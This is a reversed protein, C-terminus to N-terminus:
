SEIESCFNFVLCVVAFIIGAAVVVGYIVTLVLSVTLDVELFIGDFPIGGLTLNDLLASISQYRICPCLLQRNPYLLIYYMYYGPWVTSDTENRYQLSTNGGQILVDAIM